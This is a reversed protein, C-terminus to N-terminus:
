LRPLGHMQIERQWFATTAISYESSLRYFDQLDLNMQVSFMGAGNVEDVLLDYVLWALDSSPELKLMGDWVGEYLLSDDAQLISNTPVCIKRGQIKIRVHPEDSFVPEDPRDSVRRDDNSWELYQFLKDFLGVISRVRDAYAEADGVSEPVDAKYRAKWEVIKLKKMWEIFFEQYAEKTERKLM